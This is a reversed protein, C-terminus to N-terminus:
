FFSCCALMIVILMALTCAAGAVFLLTSTSRQFSSCRWCFTQRIQLKRKVRIKRHAKPRMWRPKLTAQLSTAIQAKGISSLVHHPTQADVM